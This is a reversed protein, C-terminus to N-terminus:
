ARLHEVLRAIFADCEDLQALEVYEDAKHAQEISGPGCVVAPIGARSFVGAETGYTVKGGETPLGLSRALDLAPSDVPTELGPTLSVVEVTVSAAPNQARMRAEVGAALARLDEVEAAEDTAAITRFELTLACHEPVINPASGGGILNVSGTSYPVPYARDFPGEVRWRECRERWGRVVEAAFEIANVGEHPLSSHAPVGRLIVRVMTLSKHARIARMSTPEGVVAVRPNLGEALMAAVLPRVGVCGIEEDYSLALHVPERLPRAVLAPLAALIAADFGKMDVAGRGHARGDRISLAFPDSSWEQGDVPVCDTHGSLVVGGAVQGSADPVTIILNAKLGDPTPLVGPMLGLSRAWAAAFEVLPLNPNRSTTDFAVLRELWALTGDPFPLVPPTVTVADGADV